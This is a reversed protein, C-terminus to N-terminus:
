QSTRGHLKTTLIRLSEDITTERGFVQLDLRNERACNRLIELGQAEGPGARRVVIPFRPKIEALAKAVGALTTDLRTFNAFGGVVWGADIDPQSFVVKALEYVREGSPDGGYEAFNAPSLGYQQLLDLALLSLGGGSCLLAVSGELRYFQGCTGQYQAQRDGDDYEETVIKADLAVAQDGSAILPNIELLVLNNTWFFDLCIKLVPALVTTHGAVLDCSGLSREIDLASTMPTITLRKVERRAGVQSGGNHSFLMVAESTSRDYTVAVYYENDHAVFNEVLLKVGPRESLIASVAEHFSKDDTAKVVLHKLGRSGEPVQAKVMVPFRTWSGGSWLVGDPVVIGHSRLMAKSRYEPLIMFCMIASIVPGYVGSRASM